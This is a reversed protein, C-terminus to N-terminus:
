LVEVVNLSPTGSAAIAYIAGNITSDAFTAPPNLNGKVVLGQNVGSATVASTGGWYIDIASQNQLILATRFPPSTRAPLVQTANNANVAVVANNVAGGGQLAFPV